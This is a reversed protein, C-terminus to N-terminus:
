ARANIPPLSSAVGKGPISDRYRTREAQLNTLTVGSIGETNQLECRMECCVVSSRLKACASVRVAKRTDGYKPHTQDGATESM